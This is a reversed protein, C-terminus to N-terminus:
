ERRAAQLAAHCDASLSGAQRSALQPGSMWEILSEYITGDAWVPGAPFTQSISENPNSWLPIIIWSSFADIFDCNEQDFDVKERFSDLYTQKTPTM